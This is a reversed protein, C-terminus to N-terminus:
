RLCINDDAFCLNSICIIMNVCMTKWHVVESLCVSLRIDNASSAEGVIRYSVISSGTCLNSSLDSLLLNLLKLWQLVHLIMERIRRGLRRFAPFFFRDSGFQGSRRPLHLQYYRHHRHHYSLSRTYCRVVCRLQQLWFVM